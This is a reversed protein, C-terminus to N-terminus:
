RLAVEVLGLTEEHPAASLRSEEPRVVDLDRGPEVVQREHESVLASRCRRSRKSCARTISRRTV